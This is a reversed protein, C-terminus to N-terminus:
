SATIAPTAADGKIADPQFASVIIAQSTLWFLIYKIPEMFLNCCYKSNYLATGKCHAMDEIVDCLTEWYSSSKLAGYIISVYNDLITLVQVGM